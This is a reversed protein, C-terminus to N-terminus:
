SITDVFSARHYSFRVLPSANGYVRQYFVFSAMALPISMLLGILIAVLVLSDQEPRSGRSDLCRMDVGTKTLNMLLRGRMETPEECRRFYSIWFLSYLFVQLKMVIYVAPPLNKVTCQLSEPVESFMFMSTTMSLIM